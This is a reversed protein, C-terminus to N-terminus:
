AILSNVLRLELVLPPVTLAESFSLARFTEALCTTPREPLTSSRTSPRCLSFIINLSFPKLPCGRHCTRLQQSPFSGAHCLQQTSRPLSSHPYCHTLM